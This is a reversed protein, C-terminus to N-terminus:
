TPEAEAVRKRRLMNRRSRINKMRKDHERQRQQEEHDKIM